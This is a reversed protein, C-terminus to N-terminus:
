LTCIPFVSKFMGFGSPLPCELALACERGDSDFSLTLFCMSDKVVISDFGTRCYEFFFCYRSGLKLTLCMYLMYKLSHLLSLITGTFSDIYLFINLCSNLKYKLFTFVSCAKHPRHLLVILFFHLIKFSSFSFVHCM